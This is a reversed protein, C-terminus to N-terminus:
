RLLTVDGTKKIIRGDAIEVEVTWTYVGIPQEQGKFTGDWGVAQDNSSFILQGWNNYVNFQMANFPGGRVLFFDNEGDGNPTFATPVVPLLAVVLPNRATDRCGNNDIVVLIVDYVGGNAYNHIPNYQNSSTSDGFSWLWANIPTGSTSQDTFFVDELAVVPNPNMTFAADPRPLITIPIMVTDTCGFVSTVELTVTYSTVTSFVHSVIQSGTTIPSGDGFDYEWNIINGSSIFSQDTFTVPTGECPTNVIFDAVPNPHVTVPLQITDLCGNTSTVILTVMYTGSAVYPHVPNNTISPATLDGFDWNWGTISGVGAVSLDTFPTNQGQCTATYTFNATPAPVFTVTLTDDDANCGQNNTSTLILNVFGNAIDLASPEYTTVVFNNSPNFFGTGTSTWIGTNTVGQVSGNLQIVQNDCFAQDLGADARPPEAFVLVMTVTESPCIGANSTLYIEISGAATDTPHVLYTTNLSGPVSINGNGNTSWTSTYGSSITGTLAVVGVNSCVTDPSTIDILPSEQFTITLSDIVANCNGNNTSTLILTVFGNGVDTPSILYDTILQSGSPNFAGAGFTTWQGTTSTGSVVGNLNVQTANSCIVNNPGAAVQPPNTFYIILSDVDNPCAFFSGASTLTLILSDQLLDAPSPTYTTNLSGANGFAGGNGGQWLAGAAYALTGSIPISSINNKCYTPAVGADVVPSNIFNIRMTDRVPNCNGTSALVFTLTGQVYDSPSPIYTTNFNTPSNLTGTGNLVTWIGTTAGGTVSGSLNVNNGDCLTQDLGANTFVRRIFSSNYHYLCGTGPGGNIIGLAFLATSNTVINASGVPVDTTNYAIQAGVWAGGTGPVVAFAAPPILTTSGNLTFDGQSGNPVLINLLFQQGNARSFNVQDSGACNLPPLLAWGLECGYGSMHLLYVPKDSDVYTLNQTISYPYTDGQNLITTTTTVGNNITVTTFNQTAVVFISENSGANLFGKNIIYQNGIVDTPVIQDGMIDHCGGGGAPNVSDDTVTVAVPKNSVVISGSLNQGSVQTFQTVNECTYVNGKLPLFVSYTVNAPHGGVVACRPTIYITTNDETAVVSFQQKPQTVVGDGNLDGGLTQNRWITQAPIVFETGMGNQGKLSYTEPNYFNPSRSIIDYVVTIPFDSSIKFGSRLVTNAPKSEISDMMFHVYKTFLTNAPVLFTTDYSSAPQQIRVTTPNNFASVHFAIPDRWWHDPTVWPAAFWFTTDIQAKVESSFGVFAFTLVIFLSRIKKM